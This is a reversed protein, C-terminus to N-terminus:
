LINAQVLVGSPLSLRQGSLTLAVAFSEQAHLLRVSGLLM